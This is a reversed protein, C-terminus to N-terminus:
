RSVSTPKKILKGNYRNANHGAKPDLKQSQFVGPATKQGYKKKGELTFKTEIKYKM